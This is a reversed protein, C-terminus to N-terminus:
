FSKRICTPAETSWHQDMMCTRVNPVDKSLYFGEDCIYTLQQGISFNAGGIQGDHLPAPVPCEKLRCHPVSENWHSDEACTLMSSGILTYNEICEYRGRSKYFTNGDMLLAAGYDIPPLYGCNVDLIGSLFMCCSHSIEILACTFRHAARLQM